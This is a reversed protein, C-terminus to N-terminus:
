SSVRGARYENRYTASHFLALEGIKLHGAGDSDRWSRAIAIGSFGCSWIQLHQHLGDGVYHHFLYSGVLAITSQVTCRAELM